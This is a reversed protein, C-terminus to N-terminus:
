VTNHYYNSSFFMSTALIMIKACIQGGNKKANQVQHTLTADPLFISFLPFNLPKKATAEIIRLNNLSRDIYKQHQIRKYRKLKM